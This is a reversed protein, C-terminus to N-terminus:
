KITEKALKTIVKRMALDEGMSMISDQSNYVHNRDASEENKISNKAM